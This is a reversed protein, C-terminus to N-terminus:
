AREALRRRRGRTAARRGGSRRRRRRRYSTPHGSASAGRRRSALQCGASSATLSGTAWGEALKNTAARKESGKEGLVEKVAAQGILVEDRTPLEAVTSIGSRHPGGERALFLKRACELADAKTVLTDREAGAESGTM